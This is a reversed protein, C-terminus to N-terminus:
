QLLSAMAPPSLGDLTQKQRVPAGGRALCSLVNAWQAARALIEAEIETSHKTLIEVAHKTLVEAEAAGRERAGTHASEVHDSAGHRAADDRARALTGLKRLATRLAVGFFTAEAGSRLLEHVQHRICDALCDSRLLEHM